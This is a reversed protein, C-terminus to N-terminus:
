YAQIILRKSKPIEIVTTRDRLEEITDFDNSYNDRAEELDEFEHYECRFAIPDFEFEQDCDQELMNLYEFLAKSGEYSFGHDTMTDVFQNEHITDKM